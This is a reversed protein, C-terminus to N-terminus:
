YSAFYRQCYYSSVNQKALWKLSEREYQYVRQTSFSSRSPPTCHSSESSAKAGHYTRYAVTIRMMEQAIVSGQTCCGM